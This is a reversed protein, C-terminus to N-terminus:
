FKIIRTTILLCDPLVKPAKSPTDAPLCVLTQLPMELIDQVINDLDNKPTIISHSTFSICCLTLNQIKVIKEFGM